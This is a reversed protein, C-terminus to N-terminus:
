DENRDAAPIKLWENLIEPITAPQDIRIRKRRGTDGSEIHVSKRPVGFLEALYRVLEDNAQGEVPAARLRIKVRNDHIGVIGTRSARPQILAAFRLTETM